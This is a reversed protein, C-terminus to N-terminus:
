DKAALTIAQALNEATLKKRPVPQTGVGLQAVRRGWFPQDGFFPVLISPVGARLGAATTGAGGHHVVARMRPFLWSHPASKLGYVTDPLDATGLGGWGSALIGRQGSRRLAELGIEAVEEPKRHAMSGFGIYVPPEGADLFDLLDAPPQWDASEDLFWYGTVHIHDGWDMPRPIVHKSYGYLVPYHGQDYVRFSGWFSPAKMGLRKRTEVDAIRVSQWLVQRIITFSFRNGIGGFPLEPVIPSTFERTPTIPFVYAQMFPIGLHEAISFGNSLGAIGGVILDAGKCLTIIQETTEEARQKLAQRVQRHIKLLNGSDVIDRFEDSQIVAEVNIGISGFELGADQVLGEFDESTLLRVDHGAQQLGKGLAIYPQVDGRSGMAVVAIKM